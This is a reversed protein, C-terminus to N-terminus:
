LAFTASQQTQFKKKMRKSSVIKNMGNNITDLELILETEFERVQESTMEDPIQKIVMAELDDISAGENIFHSVVGSRKRKIKAPNRIEWLHRLMRSHFRNKTKGVYMRGTRKCRILYIVNRTKSTIKEHVDIEYSKDGKSNTYTTANCFYTDFSTSKRSPLKVDSVKAQPSGEQKHLFGNLFLLATLSAPPPNTCPPVKGNSINQVMTHYYQKGSRLASSICKLYSRSSTTGSGDSDSNYESDYESDNSDDGSSPPEGGGAASAQPYSSGSHSLGGTGGSGRGSSSGDGTSTSATTSTSQGNPQGPTAPNAPAALNM